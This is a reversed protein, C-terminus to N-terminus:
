SGDWHRASSELWASSLEGCERELIGIATVHWIYVAYSYVGVWAVLSVLPGFIPRARGFDGAHTQYAAVLFAASGLLTATLGFTKIFPSTPEIFINPLWLLVGAMVLLTRRRRAAAFHEPFYQAVARIGVGFLLADLRLHTASMTLSFADSTWVSLCRLILVVPVAALCIPLLLRIRGRAVLAALVFPLLLYFHEEVALTWLHGASSHGVYNQLFLLNPWVGSWQQWFTDLVNGGRLLAKATPWLLLYALFIFYLPYIKLGRRVLFRAVNIRGHKEFESILLGGILFGSLVFFLDVGLWGIRFWIEAFVGVAGSPRTLELHRGFVLLIAVGRLFDLQLNRKSGYNM